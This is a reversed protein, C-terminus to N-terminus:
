QRTFGGTVISYSPPQAWLKNPRKPSSFFEDDGVTFRVVTGRDHLWYDVSNWNGGKM